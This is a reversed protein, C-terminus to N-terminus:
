IGASGAVTGIVIGLVMVVAITLMVIRMVLPKDSQTKQKMPKARLEEPKQAEAAAANQQPVPRGSSHRKKSSKKSKAM